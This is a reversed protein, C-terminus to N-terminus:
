DLEQKCQLLSNPDISNRKKRGKANIIVVKSHLECLEGKELVNLEM